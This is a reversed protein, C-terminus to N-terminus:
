KPDIPCNPFMREQRTVYFSDKVLASITIEVYIKLRVRLVHEYWLM